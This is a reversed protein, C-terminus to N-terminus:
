ELRGAVNLVADRRVHVGDALLVSGGKLQVLVNDGILSGAGVHLENHTFPEFTVKVGRGIRVDPEIRVDVTANNWAAAAKTRAVLVTRRTAHLAAQSQPTVVAAARVVNGALRRLM